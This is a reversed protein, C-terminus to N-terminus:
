ARGVSYDVNTCVIQKRNTNGGQNSKRNIIRVIRKALIESPPAGPEAGGGVSISQGRVLLRVTIRLSYEARPIQGGIRRHHLGYDLPVSHGSVPLGAVCSCTAAQRFQSSWRVYRESPWANTVRRRAAAMTRNLCPSLHCPGVVRLDVTEEVFGHLADRFDIGGGNSQGHNGVRQPEQLLVGNDQLCEPPAGAVAGGGDPVPRENRLCADGERGISLPQRTRFPRRQHGQPRHFSMSDKQLSVPPRWETCDEDVVRRRLRSRTVESM